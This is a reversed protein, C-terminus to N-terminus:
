HGLLLLTEMDSHVFRTGHIGIKTNTVSEPEHIALEFESYHDDKNNKVAVIPAGTKRFVLTTYISADTENISYLKTFSRTCGHGIMMWVHHTVTENYVNFEFELTALSERLNCLLLVDGHNLALCDPLNVQTLEERTLDFSMILKPTLFAGGVIIRKYANWYIFGDVVAQSFEFWISKHPLNSSLPSRWTGGSSLTLVEVQSSTNRYKLRGFDVNYTIKVLKPELRCPCVGFGVVTRTYHKSFVNPIAVDVTKRIWPNWIVAIRMELEYLCLLGHSSGLIMSDDNIFKHVSHLIFVHKQHPFTDDDVYKVELDREQILLHLNHAEHRLTHANVFKKSDLVFKWAKSVSRCRILSKTDSIRQIIEMQSEFPINDSM